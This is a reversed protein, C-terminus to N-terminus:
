NPLSWVQSRKPNSARRAQQTCTQAIHEIRRQRMVPEATSNAGCGM